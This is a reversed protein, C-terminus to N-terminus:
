IWNSTQDTDNYRVRVKILLYFPTSNNWDKIRLILYKEEQYLLDMYVYKTYEFRKFFM